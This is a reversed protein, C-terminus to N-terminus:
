MEDLPFMGSQRPCPPCTKAARGDLQQSCPQFLSWDCGGAKLCPGHAVFDYRPSPGCLSPLLSSVVAAGGASGAAM